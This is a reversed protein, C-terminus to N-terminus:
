TLGTGEIIWETATIKTVRAIGNAALTRSGTTGAGALRMTDTTIAITLVGAANQNIIQLETGIPFAVSSNAPITWTRATTDAAPHLVITDQDDLVFGYAASISRIRRGAIRPGHVGFPGARHDEVATVVSGATTIQYVRAYEATNNWNTTATSTSIVGSSRLVVVRNTAANTLTLTGATIAFGGWRGGYYGWTLGIPTAPHRKGYVSQHDLTEFNENIPVEPSVQNAALTQM